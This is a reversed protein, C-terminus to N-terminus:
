RQTRSAPKKLIRFFAVGGCMIGIGIMAVVVYFFLPRRQPKPEDINGTQNPVSNQRPPTEVSPKPLSSETRNLKIEALDKSLKEIDKKSREFSEDLERKKEAKLLRAQRAEALRRGIEARERVCETYGAELSDPHTASLIPDVTKGALAGRLKMTIEMLCSQKIVRLMEEKQKPDSITDARGLRKRIRDVSEKLRARFEEAIEQIQTGSLPVRFACSLPKDVDKLFGERQEKFHTRVEDPLFLGGLVELTIKEAADLVQVISERVAEKKADTLPPVLKDGAISVKISKIWEVVMAHNYSADAETIPLTSSVIAELRERSSFEARNPLLQSGVSLVEEKVSILLDGKEKESLEGLNGERLLVNKELRQLIEEKTLFVGEGGSALPIICSFVVILFLPSLKRM